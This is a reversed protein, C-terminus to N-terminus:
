KGTKTKPVGFIADDLLQSFAAKDGKPQQPTPKQGSKPAPKKPTLLTKNKAM